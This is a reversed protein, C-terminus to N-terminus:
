TISLFVLWILASQPANLSTQGLTARHRSRHSTGLFRPLQKLAGCAGPGSMETMVLM